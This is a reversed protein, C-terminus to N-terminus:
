LPSTKCELRINSGIEKFEHHEGAHPLASVFQIHYINGLGGGSMHLVCQKGSADARRAVKMSRIIGVFEYNGPQVIELGDHALLWRFGYFGYDQEGNAIPITLADAVQKIEEVQDFMVPEEFYRYKHEELLRGVRIAEPVSYFSNSDAYLAVNDGFTKRVQPIMAETRGPPGAAYMDPTMFMLGGVKIKLAHLDYSYFAKKILEISEEVPKERWETAMYL